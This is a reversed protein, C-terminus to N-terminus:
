EAVADHYIHPRPADGVRSPPFSYPETGTDKRRPRFILILSDLTQSARHSEFGHVEKSAGGSKRTDGKIDKTEAKASRAIEPCASIVAIEVFPFLGCCVGRAWVGGIALLRACLISVIWM